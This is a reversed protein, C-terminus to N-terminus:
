RVFQWVPDIGQTILIFNRPAEDRAAMPTSPSDHGGITDRRTLAERSGLRFQLVFFVVRSKTVKAGFGTIVHDWLFGKRRHSILADVSRKTVKGSAVFQDGLMKPQLRIHAIRPLRPLGM